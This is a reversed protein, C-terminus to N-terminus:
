VDHKADTSVMIDVMLCRTTLERQKDGSFRGGENPPASTIAPKTSTAGPNIFTPTDYQNLLTM